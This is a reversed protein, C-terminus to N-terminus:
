KGKKKRHQNGKGVNKSHSMAQYNSLRDSNKNNNKHDVDVNRPLSKGRAKEYKYRAADTSTTSGDKKRIVMIKRGGNKKSGKYPGYTKPTAVTVGQLLPYAM